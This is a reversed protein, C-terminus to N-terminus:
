AQGDRAKRPPPNKCTAFHTVHGKAPDYCRTGAGITDADVPMRAGRPTITM